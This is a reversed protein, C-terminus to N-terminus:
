EEIIEESTFFQMIDAITDVDNMNIEGKLASACWAMPDDILKRLEDNTHWIKLLELVNENKM